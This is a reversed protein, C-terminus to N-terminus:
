LNSNEAEVEKLKKKIETEVANFQNTIYKLAPLASQPNLEIWTKVEEIDPITTNYEIKLLRAKDAYELMCLYMIKCIEGFMRKPDQLANEDIKFDQHAYINVHMFLGIETGGFNVKISKAEFETRFQDLYGM